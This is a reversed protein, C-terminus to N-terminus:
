PIFPNKNGQVKQVRRAWEREWADPPDEKSWAELLPRLKRSVVGRKPYAWDMYLYTRAVDGRIAPRPEVLDAEFDIEVDCAGYARDEGPIMGIQFNARDGNVEGIAPRLNYLDAEMRAFDPNAKKACERGKYPEGKSDVCAPDGDRWEKFSQGFAHAPVVHEWEIREARSRNKRPTYGCSKLDVEKEAYACGCYFTEEHGEFIGPLRGKASEFTKIRQNGGDSPGPSAGGTGPDDEAPTPDDQGSDDPPPPCCAALTLALAGGLGIWKAVSRKAARQQM